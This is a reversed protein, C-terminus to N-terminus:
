PADRDAPRGTIAEIASEAYGQVIPYDHKLGERLLPLADARKAEGLLFFAVAREHPKGSRATALLVNEDEGGYLRAVAARDYRRAPWWREMADVLSRVTKDGHCLACELPRDLTVKAPDTPSAIRHYRTLRGDLSMNKKPMHCAVCESGAGSAAHHTHKALADEAALSPHCSTCQANSAALGGGRARATADRAHPDHCQTCALKTRCAGLLLDRAEGSNIHSGGANATRKGGEWTHEYGSFLVQHCRACARNVAAARPDEDRPPTVAFADSKPWLSPRARPDAAHAAAGNHCSECGIGLEVLQPARFHSRTEEAAARLREAISGAGPRGGIRRIEGDLAASLATPDTVAYTARREPPLMRDVFTGQYARAAGGSGEALAGLVTSVYPVTNHCFICTEAWVPGEVLGPRERVMVSYGKYRLRKKELIWSVPLIVEDGGLAPTGETASAVPEGVFDERHRGGIVKTVRFVKEGSRKSRLLLFRERGRTELRADDGKQTFTRGDFPAHITATRADRTMSHMPAAAFARALEEHCPTCAASGAYDARLVNSSSRPVRAAPVEPRAPAPATACAAVVSAAVCAAVCAAAARASM